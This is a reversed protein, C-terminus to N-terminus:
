TAFLAIDLIENVLEAIGVAVVNLHPDYPPCSSQPLTQNPSTVSLAEFPNPSKKPVNRADM